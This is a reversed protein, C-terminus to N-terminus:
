RVSGLANAIILSFIGIVVAGALLYFSALRSRNFARYALATHLLTVCLGFLVVLYPFYWVGLTYGLDLSSYGVPVPLQSPHVKPLLLLFGAINAILAMMILWLTMSDQFFRTDRVRAVRERTSTLIEKPSINKRM